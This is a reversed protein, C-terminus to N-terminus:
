ENKKDHFNLVTNHLITELNIMINEWKYYKLVFEYGKQAIQNRYYEDELLKLICDSYEEPNKAVLMVEQAGDIFGKVTLESTVCPVKMAMAQLLKNQLGTGLQMPAIFVKAKNYYERIDDIWGKIIVNKSALSLVKKNPSAGSILIKIDYKKKKLLPLIKKVIYIAADINPPYDLNGSFFLDYEKTSESPHYYNLDIGNAVINVYKRDEFPLNRRDEESIIIHSNFNKFVKEEYKKVRQLEIKLILKMLLNSKCIRRELGKSIIDVYDIIKPVDNVDVVYEAARILQCYILDPKVDDIINFVEKKIRKNFYFATQFPLSSFFKKIINFVILYKPLKSVFVKKCYGILPNTSPNFDMKEDLSFLYIDHKNSLYKIQYFARLKDGKDIPYPVRTTLYFIKM